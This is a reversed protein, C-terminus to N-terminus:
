EIVMKARNLLEEYQRKLEYLRPLYAELAKTDIGDEKYLDIQKKLSEIQVDFQVIQNKYNLIEKAGIPINIYPNTETNIKHEVSYFKAKRSMLWGIILSILAILLFMFIYVILSPPLFKTIALEYLITVYTLTTLPFSIYNGWGLKIYFYSSALFETLSTNKFNIGFKM